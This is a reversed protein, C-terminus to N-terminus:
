GFSPPKQQTGPDCLPFMSNGESHLSRDFPMWGATVLTGALAPSAMMKVSASVCPVSGHVESVVRWVM